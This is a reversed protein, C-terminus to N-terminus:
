LFRMASIQVPCQEMLKTPLRQAPDFALVARHQTQGLIAMFSLVVTLQQSKKQKMEVALQKVQLLIQRSQPLLLLGVKM